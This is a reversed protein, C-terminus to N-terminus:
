NQSARKNIEAEVFQAIQPNADMKRYTRKLEEIFEREMGPKVPSDALAAAEPLVADSAQTSLLTGRVRGQPFVASQLCPRLPRREDRSLSEVLM